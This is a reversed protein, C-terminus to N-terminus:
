EVRKAVSWFGDESCNDIHRALFRHPPNVVDWCCTRLSSPSRLSAENGSLSPGFHFFRVTTHSSGVGCEVEMAASAGQPPMSCPRADLYTFAASACSKSRPYLQSNLKHCVFGCEAVVDALKCHTLQALLNWLTRV